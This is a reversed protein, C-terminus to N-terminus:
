EFCFRMCKLLNFFFHGVHRLFSPKHLIYIGYRGISLHCAIPPARPHPTPGGGSEKFPVHMCKNPTSPSAKYPLLGPHVRGPGNCSQPHESIGRSRLSQGLPYIPVSLRRTLPPFTRAPALWTFLWRAGGVLTKNKEHRTM